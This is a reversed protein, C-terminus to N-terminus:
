RLHPAIEEMVKRVSITPTCIIVINAEKAADAATPTTRKVAGFQHARMMVDVDRDYGIVETNEPEARKLALGMSGGILGLGIIALTGM